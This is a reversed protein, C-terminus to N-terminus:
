DQDFAKALDELFDEDRGPHQDLILDGSITWAHLCWPCFYEGNELRV